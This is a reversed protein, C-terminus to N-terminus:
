FFNQWDAGYQELTNHLGDRLPEYISRLAERSLHRTRYREPRNGYLAILSFRTPRKSENVTEHRHKSWEWALFDAAQLPPAPADNKKLFDHSQYCYLDRVTPIAALHMLDNAEAQFEQGAEFFYSVRSGIGQERIWNGMEQMCLYCCFSYPERLGRLQSAVAQFDARSFSFAIAVEIEAAVIAAARKILDNSDARTFDEFEGQLAVLDAMHFVKISGLMNKWRRNFRRVNGPFLGYGAVVFTGDERESEDFYAEVAM